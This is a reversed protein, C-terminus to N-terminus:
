RAERTWMFAKTLGTVVREEHHMESERMENVLIHVLEHIVVREIEDDDLNNFAPLNFNISAVGYEWQPKVTARVIGEGDGTKFENLITAPDDIYFIDIKWWGLGLPTIWKKLYKKIKKRKDRVM